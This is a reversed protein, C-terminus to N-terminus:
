FVWIHSKSYDTDESYFVESDADHLKELYDPKIFVFRFNTFELKIEEYFYPLRTAERVKDDGM